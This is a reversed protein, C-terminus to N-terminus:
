KDMLPLIKNEFFYEVDKEEISYVDDNVKVSVGRESCKGMCFSGKLIVTNKFGANEILLNLKDIIVKSGKLHCSSGVCVFIDM